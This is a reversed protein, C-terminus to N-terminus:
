DTTQVIENPWLICIEMNEVYISVFISIDTSEHSSCLSCTTFMNAYVVSFYSQRTMTYM